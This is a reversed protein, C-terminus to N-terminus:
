ERPSKMTGGRAVQAQRPTAFPIEFSSALAGSRQRRAVPKCGSVPRRSSRLRTHEFKPWSVGNSLMAPLSGVALIITVLILFPDARLVPSGGYAALFRQKTSPHAFGGHRHRSSLLSAVYESPIVPYSLAQADALYERRWFLYIIAASAPLLGTWSLPAYVFGLSLFNWVTGCLFLSLILHLLTDGNRIHGIEHALIASAAGSDRKALLHLGTTYVLKPRFVGLLQVGVRRPDSVRYFRVRTRRVDEQLLEAWLEGAPTDIFTDDRRAHWRRLKLSHWVGIFSALVLSLASFAVIPTAGGSGLVVVLLWYLLLWNDSSIRISRIRGHRDTADVSAM